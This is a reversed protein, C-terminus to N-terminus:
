EHRRGRHTRVENCRVFDQGDEEPLGTQEFDDSALKDPRSIIIDANSKLNKYVSLEERSLPFGMPDICANAYKEAIGSLTAKCRRRADDSTAYNELQKWCLEFEAIVEEKCIRPPIGYDLGRCLM